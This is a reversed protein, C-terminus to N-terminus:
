LRIRSIRKLADTREVSLNLFFQMRAKGEPAGDSDPFDQFYFGSNTSIALGLEEANRVIYLSTCDNNVGDTETTTIVTDPVVILPKRDFTPVAVGFSNVTEGAAGKRKGITSLRAALSANLIIGNAGPVSMLEKMLAEVFADQDAEDIIQGGYQKNMAALEATTFGLRSTQGGAAADLVFTAIGLMRDDASTGAIIDNQIENALKVCLGSLRRDALMKLGAPALGVNADLKRVDDIAIERGYLALNLSTVTPVQKDKQIADGEGRAATNTFTDADKVLQYTSPDLKFELFQLLPSLTLMKALFQQARGSLVSVQSIKM